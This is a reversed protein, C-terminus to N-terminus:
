HVAAAAAASSRSGSCANELDREILGRTELMRGVGAGIQEVLVQLESARPAAVARFVPLGAGGTWYVGDLFIMHFHVNLNLASGFRQILTVAGTHGRARTLGAKQLLSGSITRYVTGLVQSLATPYTALLFRLAFAFSPLIGLPYLIERWWESM